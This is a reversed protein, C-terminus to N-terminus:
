HIMGLAMLRLLMLINLLRFLLVRAYGVVLQGLGGAQGGRRARSAHLLQFGRPDDLAEVRQEIRARQVKLHIDEDGDLHLTLEVSKGRAKDLYFELFVAKQLLGFDVGKFGAFLELRSAKFDLQDVDVM